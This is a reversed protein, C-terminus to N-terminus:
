PKPAARRRRAQMPDIQLPRYIELRDGAQLIYRDPTPNRKGNLLRSFVGMPSRELDLGAFEETIGSMRAAELATTGSPVQLPIICQKEVTGYAVEVPILGSHREGDTM